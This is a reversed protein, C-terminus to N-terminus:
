IAIILGHKRLIDISKVFDDKTNKIRLEDIFDSLGLSRLYEDAFQVTVQMAAKAFTYPDVFTEKQVECIGWCSMKNIEKKDDGIQEIYKQIRDDFSV